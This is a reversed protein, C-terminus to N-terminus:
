ARAGRICELEEELLRLRHKVTDIEYSIRDYEDEGTMHVFVSVAFDGRGREIRCRACGRERLSDLRVEWLEIEERIESAERLIRPPSGCAESRGIYM